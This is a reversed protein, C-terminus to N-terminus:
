LGFKMLMINVFVNSFINLYSYLIQWFTIGFIYGKYLLSSDNGIKLRGQCFIAISKIM